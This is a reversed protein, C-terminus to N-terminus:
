ARGRLNQQRYEITYHSNFQIESPTLYILNEVCCNTKDGDIYFIKQNAEPEKMFEQAVLNSVYEKKGDLKVRPNDTISYVDGFNSVAYTPHNRIVKIMDVVVIINGLVDMLFAVMRVHM